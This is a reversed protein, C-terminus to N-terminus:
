GKRNRLFEQFQHIKIEGTRRGQRVYLKWNGSSEKDKVFVLQNRTYVEMRCVRRRNIEPFTMTISNNVLSKDLFSGDVLDRVKLELKDIDINLGADLLERDDGCKWLRCDDSLGPYHEALDEPSQDKPNGSRWAEDAVGIWLLGGNSNILGAISKMASALVDDSELDSLKAGVDNKFRKRDYTFSSKFEQRGTEGHKIELWPDSPGTQQFVFLRKETKTGKAMEPRIGIDRELLLQEIKLCASLDFDPYQLREFLEVLSLEKGVRNTFYIEKIEVVFEDLISKILWDASV